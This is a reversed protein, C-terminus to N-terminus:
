EALEIYIDYHTCSAVLVIVQGANLVITLHAGVPNDCLIGYCDNAYFTYMDTYIIKEIQKLKIVFLSNTNLFVIQITYM